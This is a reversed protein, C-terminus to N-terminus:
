YKVLLCFWTFYLYPHMEVNSHGVVGGSWWEVVGGSWWEVMGGNWWRPVGGDRWRAM